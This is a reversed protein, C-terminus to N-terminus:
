KLVESLKKDLREGVAGIEIINGDPSILFAAPIAAVGYKAAVPSGGGKLLRCGSTKKIM